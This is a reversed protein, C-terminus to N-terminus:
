VKVPDPQKTDVIDSYGLDLPRDSEALESVNKGFQEFASSATKNTVIEKLFPPAVRFLQQFALKYRLQMVKADFLKVDLAKPAPKPNSLPEIM